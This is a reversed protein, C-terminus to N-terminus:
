GKIVVVLIKRDIAAFVFSFPVLANVTVGCRSVIGNKSTDGAVAIRLCVFLMIPYVSIYIVTCGTQGTVRGSTFRYIKIVAHGCKREGASMGCCVTRLTMGSTKFPQGHIAKGAVLGIKVL